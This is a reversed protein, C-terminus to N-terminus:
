HKAVETEHGAASESSSVGSAVCVATLSSACGVVFAFVVGAWSSTLVM